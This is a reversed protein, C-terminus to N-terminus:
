DDIRNFMVSDFYDEYTVYQKIVTYEKGPTLKESITQLEKKDEVNYDCAYHKNVDEGSLTTVLVKKSMCSEHIHIEGSFYQTRPISDDIPVNCVACNISM